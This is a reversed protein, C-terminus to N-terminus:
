QIGVQWTEHAFKTELGERLHFSNSCECSRSIILDFRFHHIGVLLTTNAISQDTSVHFTVIDYRLFKLVKYVDSQNQLALSHTM